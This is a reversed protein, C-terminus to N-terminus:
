RSKISQIIDQQKILYQYIKLYFLAEQKIREEDCTWTPTDGHDNLYGYICSKCVSPRWEECELANIVQSLEPIDKM